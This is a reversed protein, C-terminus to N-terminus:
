AEMSCNVKSCTSQSSFYTVHRIKKCSTKPPVQQIHHPVLTTAQAGETIQNAMGPAVGNSQNGARDSAPRNSSNSSCLDVQSATFACKLNQVTKLTFINVM